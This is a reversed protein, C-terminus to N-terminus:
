LLLHLVPLSRVKAALDTALLCLQADLDVGRFVQGLSDKVPLALTHVRCLGGPVTCM